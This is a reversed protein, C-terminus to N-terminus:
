NTPNTVCLTEISPNNLNTIGRVGAGNVVEAILNDGTDYYRDDSWFFESDELNPINHTRALELAEGLAPLRFGLNACHYVAENWPRAFNEARVCLNAIRNAAVCTDVGSKNRVDAGSLSENVVDASNVVNVDIDPAKVQAGPGLDDSQVTNAGNLAVATGGTLVIFALITVM